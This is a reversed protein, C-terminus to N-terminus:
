KLVSMIREAIKEPVGTADINKIINQYYKILPATQENYINMRDRIIKENDDARQILPINCVDCLEDKKPKTETMLNYTKKCNPCFRRSLLRKIIFEQDIDFNIVSDIKTIKSLEEAQAITRPFGDLIFNYKPLNKKILPIMFEDPLLEGKDMYTKIKIGLESGSNVEDRLINSSIHKLNLKKAVLDAITGKGSGPAGLFILKM